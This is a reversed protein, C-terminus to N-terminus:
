GTLNFLIVTAERSTIKMKSSAVVANKTSYCFILNYETLHSIEIFLM